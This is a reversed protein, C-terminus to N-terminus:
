EEKSRFLVAATYECFCCFPHWCVRWPFARRNATESVTRDVVLYGSATSLYPRPWTGFARRTSFRVSNKVSNLASLAGIQGRSEVRSRQYCLHESGSSAGTLRLTTPELGVEPAMFHLSIPITWGANPPRSM